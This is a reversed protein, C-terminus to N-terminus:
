GKMSLTLILGVISSIAMIALTIAAKRISSVATDLRKETRDIKEKMVAIDPSATILRKMDESLKDINRTTQEQVVILKDINATNEAVVKELERM